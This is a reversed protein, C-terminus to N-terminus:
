DRPVTFEHDAEELKRLVIEIRPPDGNFYSAIGSFKGDRETLGLLRRLEPLSYVLTKVTSIQTTEKM